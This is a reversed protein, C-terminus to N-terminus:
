KTPNVLKGIRRRVYQKTMGASAHGLLAQAADMGRQDETETAAKARLDRFQFAKPSIGACERALGFRGDLAAASLPQGRENVVLAFSRVKLKAKRELIRDIVEKLKGVIAVRLKAGTKGQTVWLAGDRIHQERMRLCDGPRQGALHALDMADRTSQDAWRYVSAFMEDTVFVDRGTGRNRQVGVTPNALKTYGQERAWTWISSLLAIEQTSHTSKRWDRYKAIHHPEIAELPAPPSDFFKYLKSLEGLNDKQTRPAKRSFKPSALYLEAVKRFTIVEAAAAPADGGELEAWKRVAAVYDKGLPIEKDGADYYYYTASPRVRARMGRPLNLHVSRKRGM